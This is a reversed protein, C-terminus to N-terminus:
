AKTFDPFQAVFDSVFIGLLIQAGEEETDQLMCSGQQFDDPTGVVITTTIEGM